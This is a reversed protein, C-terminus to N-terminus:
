HVDYRYDNFYNKDYIQAISNRGYIEGYIKIAYSDMMGSIYDVIARERNMNDRYEIPLLKNDKNFTPDMFAEFLGKIIREGQKEYIQVVDSRNICKFTLKKIYKALDKLTKFNLEFHNLTGTEHKLKSSVPVVDIDLILEHVLNSILEKRFLFAYEESSHYVSAKNAVRKASCVLDKLFDYSFNCAESKKFEYLFEDITFLNLSLADELDHAGYAIEDALDVIQVDITRPNINNDDSIEKIM